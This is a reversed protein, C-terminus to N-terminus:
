DTLAVGLGADCRRPYIDVLLSRLGGISARVTGRRDAVPRGFADDGDSRARDRGPWWSRSAPWSRSWATTCTAAIRRREQESRIHRPRAATTSGSGRRLRAVLAWVLPHLLGDAAAPQHAHDRRVRAV